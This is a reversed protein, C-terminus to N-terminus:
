VGSSFWFRFPRNLSELGSDNLIVSYAKGVLEIKIRQDCAVLKGVSNEQSLLSVYQASVIHWAYALHKVHM